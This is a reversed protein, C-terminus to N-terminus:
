LDDFYSRSQYNDNTCKCNCKSKEVKVELNKIRYSQFINIAAVSLFALSELIPM